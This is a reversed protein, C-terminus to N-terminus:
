WRGDEIMALKERLEEARKRWLEAKEEAEAIRYRLEDVKDQEEVSELYEILKELKDAQTNILYRMRYAALLERAAELATYTEPLLYPDFELDITYSRNMGDPADDRLFFDYCAEFVHPRLINFRGERRRFHNFTKRVAM